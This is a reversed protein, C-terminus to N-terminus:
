RCIVYGADKAYKWLIRESDNQPGGRRAIAQLQREIAKPAKGEVVECDEAAETSAGEVTFSVTKNRITGWRDVQVILIHGEHPIAVRALGDRAESAQKIIEPTLPFEVEKNCYPCV